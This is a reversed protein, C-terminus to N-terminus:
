RAAARASIFEPHHFLTVGKIITLTAWRTLFGARGL